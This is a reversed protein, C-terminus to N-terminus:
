SLHEKTPNKKTKEVQIEDFILVFLREHSYIYMYKHKEVQSEDFTLDIRCTWELTTHAHLYLFICIYTYIYTCIYTSAHICMNM